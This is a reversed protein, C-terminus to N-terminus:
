AIKDFESEFMVVAEERSCDEAQVIKEIAEKYSKSRKDITVPKKQLPKGDECYPCETFMMGNGLIKESGYCVKCIM